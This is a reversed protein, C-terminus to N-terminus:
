TLVLTWQDNGTIPLPVGKLPWETVGQNQELGAPRQLQLAPLNFTTRFGAAVGHTLVLAQTTQDLALQYPNITTLPEADVTTELMEARDTILIEESNALLRPEVTIGLDLVFQRMKLTTGGLTFVPTNAKAAIKPKKFGTYVAGSPRATQTAVEFLGTFTFEIMPIGQANVTFKATGRSGKMKFLTNDIWFYFTGSEQGESIPNYTVSTTALITQAVGCGRLLAGWAPPTGAAGSAQLEVKFSLKMHLDAPITGSAAMYPLDLDRDVDQGEMPSLKVESAQIADLAATPTPDVGYTVEPKFTLLKNRWFLAM